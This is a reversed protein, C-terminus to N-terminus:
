GWGLLEERLEERVQMLLRGLHNEGVHDCGYQCSFCVGFYRDHWNNGEVLPRQGTALLMTRIPPPSFKARLCELMIDLKIQEWDHRLQIRRGIRKADGPTPAALIRAADAPNTAKAAQFAHENTPYTIGNRTVPIRAFNSLFEYEDAFRDIPTMDIATM